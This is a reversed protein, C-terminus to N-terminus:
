KYKRVAAMKLRALVAVLDDQPVPVLLLAERVLAHGLALGHDRQLAGEVVLIVVDDDDRSVVRVLEESNLLVVGELLRVALDGLLLGMDRIEEGAMSPHGIAAQDHTGILTLNHEKFARTVVLHEKGLTRSLTEVNLTDNGVRLTEDDSTLVALDHDILLTFLGLVRVM